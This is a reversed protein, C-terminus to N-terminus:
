GGLKAVIEALLTRTDGIMGPWDEKEYEIEEGLTGGYKEVFRENRRGESHKFCNGLMRARQNGSYGPLDSIVVGLANGLSICAIAFDTQGKGNVCNVGREKCLRVIFNEASAAISVGLNAFMVRETGLLMFAEDSVPDYGYEDWQTTRQKESQQRFEQFKKDTLESWKLIANHLRTLKAIEDPLIMAFWVDDGYKPKPLNSMDLQDAM